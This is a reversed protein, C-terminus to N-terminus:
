DINIFKKMCFGEAGTATVVKYFEGSSEFLKVKVEAGLLLTTVVDSATSAEARVNLKACDTVVGLTEGTQVLEIAEDLETDTVPTVEEVVSEEVTVEPEAAPAEQPKAYNTYNHKSM